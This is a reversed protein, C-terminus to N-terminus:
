RVFTSAQGIIVGNANTIFGFENTGFGAPVANNIFVPAPGVFNFGTQAGITNFGAVQSSFPATMTIPTFGASGNFTSGQVTSLPTVVTVSSRIFGNAFSPTIVQIPTFTSGATSTTTPTLSGNATTTLSGNASVPTTSVGPILTNGNATVTSSVGPILTTTTTQAFLAAPVVLVAFLAILKLKM